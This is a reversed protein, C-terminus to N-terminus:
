NTADNLVFLKATLPCATIAMKTSYKPSISQIATGIEYSVDSTVATGYHNAYVFSSPPDFAILNDVCASQRM